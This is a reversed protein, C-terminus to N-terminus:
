TIKFHFIERLCTDCFEFDASHKISLGPPLYLDSAVDWALNTYGEGCAFIVKGATYFVSIRGVQAQAWLDIPLGWFHLEDLDMLEAREALEDPGEPAPPRGDTSSTM